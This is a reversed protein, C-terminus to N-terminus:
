VKKFIFLLTRLIYYFYYYLNLKQIMKMDIKSLLTPTEMTIGSIQALGTIGPKVKFVGRKKRELILKKQNLLCPRPGVFSMDGIFVNWLQTIEDLKFLRLFSGYNTIMSNNVLHTAVSKTEKKMTRLKILIFLKQNYGVRKQKFIPSGNEFLGVILLLIIVPSLILLGLFSLILDFFRIM